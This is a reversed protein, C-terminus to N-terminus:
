VIKHELAKAVAGSVSHVQLKEYIHRVHTSITAFSVFCKEAIMKYSFGKVLLELIDKERNSLDFKNLKKNQNKGSVINLLQRAVSPTM